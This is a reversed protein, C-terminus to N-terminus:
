RPTRRTICYRLGTPDTLLTWWDHGAVVTAGLAVHRAVEADRDSAALDLHADVTPQDDDLRQVLWRLPQEDPPQLREFEAEDVDTLDWGTVTRWFGVEVDYSSPPVDLCVQDVMSRTGDPWTAPSPRRSAPHAVYCFVFGGPSRLVVYGAEHRVLVHAGAEIAAETAVLPDAVHLDLHIRGPGDALDQVRLYDDGAPPVLTGFEGREGRASSPSYGTVASWFAVGRDFGGPAFDLFASVWTPTTSM